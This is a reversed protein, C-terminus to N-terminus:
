RRKKHKIIDGFITWFESGYERELQLGFETILNHASEELQDVEDLLSKNARYYVLCHALHHWFNRQLEAASWTPCFSFKAGPCFRHLLTLVKCNQEKGSNRIAAHPACYAYHDPWSVSAIANSVRLNNSAHVQQGDDVLRRRAIENDNLMELLQSLNFWSTCDLRRLDKDIAKEVQYTCKGCYLISQYLHVHMVEHWITEVQRWEPVSTRLFIVSGQEGFLVYGLGDLDPMLEVRIGEAILALARLKTFPYRRLTM